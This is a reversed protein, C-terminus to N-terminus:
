LYLNDLKEGDLEDKKWISSFVHFGYSDLDKVVDITDTTNEFETYQIPYFYDADYVMFPSGLDDYVKTLLRPGLDGHKLKKGSKVIERIQRSWERFITEHPYRAYIVATGISRWDPHYEQALFVNDNIEEFPFPKLCLVDLDIYLGGFKELLQSRFYNSFAVPSNKGHGESYSFWKKRSVIKDGFRLTIGKPPNEIKSYTWLIFQNNPYNKRWSEIVKLNLKSLRKGSWFANIIM